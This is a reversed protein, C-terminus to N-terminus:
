SIASFLKGYDERMCVQLAGDHSGLADPGENLRGDERIFMMFDRKCYTYTDAGKIFFVIYICYKFSSILGKIKGLPGAPVLNLGLIIYYIFSYKQIVPFKQRILLM